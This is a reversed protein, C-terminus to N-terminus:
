EEDEKIEDLKPRDEYPFGAIKLLRRINPEEEKEFKGSGMRTTALLRGDTQTLLKRELNGGRRKAILVYYENLIIPIHDKAQGPLIIGKVMTETAADLKEGIHGILITHCPLTALTRSIMQFATLVTNWDQVRMGHGASGKGKLNLATSMDPMQRGEKKMIQWLLSTCMVTLSDVAFTGIHNFFKARRLNNFEKEWKLYAQPEQYSDKEFSNDVLCDGSKIMDKLVDTGGPDFSHVLIPKPCTKLISTKGVGKEGLLLLHMMNTQPSDEYVKKIRNINAKISVTDMLLGEMYALSELM